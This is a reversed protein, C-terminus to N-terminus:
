MGAPDFPLMKQDCGPNASAAKFQIGALLEVNQKFIGTTNVLVGAINAAQDYYASCGFSSNFPPPPSPDAVYVGHADNRGPPTPIAAFIQALTAANIAGTVLDPTPESNTPTSLASPEGSPRGEPPHPLTPLVPPRALRVAGRTTVALEAGLLSVSEVWLALEM